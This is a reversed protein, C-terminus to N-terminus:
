SRWETAMDCPMPDDWGVGREWLKQFLVKACIVFLGILGLPDFIRAAAQLLVRKSTGETSVANIVSTLSVSMEDTLPTLVLGLVKRSYDPLGQEDNQLAAWVVDSNSAWKNLRMGAEAMITNAEDAIRVAEHM